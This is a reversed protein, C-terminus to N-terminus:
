FSGLVVKPTMNLTAACGAPKRGRKAPVNGSPAVPAPAPVDAQGIIALNQAFVKEFPV